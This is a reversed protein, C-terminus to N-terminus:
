GQRRGLLDEVMQATEASAPEHQETEFDNATLGLVSVLRVVHAAAKRRIARSVEGQGKLVLQLTLISGLMVSLLHKAATEAESVSVPLKVEDDDALVIAPTRITPIKEDKPSSVTQSAVDARSQGKYVPFVSVDPVEKNRRIFIDREKQTLLFAPNQTLGWLIYMRDPGPTYKGAVYSAVAREGCVLTQAANFHRPTPLARWWVRFHDRIMKRRSESYGSEFSAM